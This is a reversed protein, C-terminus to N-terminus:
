PQQKEVRMQPLYFYSSKTLFTGEAKSGTSAIFHLINEGVAVINKAIDVYPYTVMNEISSSFALPIYLLFM